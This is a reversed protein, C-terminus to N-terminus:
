ALQRVDAHVENKPLGHQTLPRAIQQPAPHAAGLLWLSVFVCGFAIPGFPTAHGGYWLSLGALLLLLRPVHPAATWGLAGVLAVLGILWSNAVLPDVASLRTGILPGLLSNVQGM